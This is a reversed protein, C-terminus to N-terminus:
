GQPQLARIWEIAKNAVPQTNDPSLIRGAIVHHFTDQSSEIEHIDSPTGSEKGWRKAVERTVDSKVVGDDPHFIFLAPIKFGEFPLARTHEVSAQMPLLAVSPYKTTWWKAQEDNKPEFSREAGAILPLIHRGWPITLMEAGPSQVAYNPSVMVMGAVNEMLDPRSAAWSALTGGTSTSVVVVKDGLARGVALAEAVDNFWNNVTAEAMAAGDRGHGRLRTYFLNADLSRAILDPVPRIEELSASFGHIYVISLRKKAKSSPDAWVIQKNAGPRLDAVASEQKALYADLDTGLTEAKFSITEDIPVRPGLYFLTGGLVVIAALWLMIKKLM